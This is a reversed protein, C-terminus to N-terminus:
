IFFVLIARRKLRRINRERHWDLERFMRLPFKKGMLFRFGSDFHGLVEPVVDLLVVKLIGLFLREDIGIRGELRDEAAFLLDAHELHGLKDRRM